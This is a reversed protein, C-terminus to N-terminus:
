PTTPTASPMRWCEDSMFLAGNADVSVSMYQRIHASWAANVPDTDLEAFVAEIERTASGTAIVSTGRRFLSFETIGAAHMAQVVGDWVPHHEREYEEVRDPLIEFTYCFRQETM